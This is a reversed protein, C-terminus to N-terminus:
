VKQYRSTLFSKFWNLSQDHLNCNALQEILLYHPVSDFACFLDFSMIDYPIRDNIWEALTSYAALLNTVAFRNKTLWYQRDSIFSFSNIYWLLQNYIIQEFLKGM